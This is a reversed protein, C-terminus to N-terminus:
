RRRCSHLSIFMVSNVNRNFCLPINIQFLVVIDMVSVNPLVGQNTGYEKYLKHVVTNKTWCNLYRVLLTKSNFHHSKLNIIVKCSFYVIESVYSGMVLEMM